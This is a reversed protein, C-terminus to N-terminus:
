SNTLVYVIKRSLPAKVCAATQKGDHEEGSIRVYTFLDLVSAALSLYCTIVM